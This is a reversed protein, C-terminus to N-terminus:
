KSEEKEDMWGSEWARNARTDMPYPNQSIDSGYQHFEERGELYEPSPELSKDSM